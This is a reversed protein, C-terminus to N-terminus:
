NFSFYIPYPMITLQSLTNFPLLKFVWSKFFLCIGEIPVYKQCRKKWNEAFIYEKGPILM